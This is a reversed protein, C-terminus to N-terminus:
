QKMEGKPQGPTAPVSPHGPPMAGGPMAGDPMAGAGHPSGKADAKSKVAWTAGKRELTYNMQMGSGAAGGKPRFEVTADVTDGKFNLGSVHVDMSSLTVKSAVHDMVAQRIAEETQPARNCAAVSLLALFVVAYRM